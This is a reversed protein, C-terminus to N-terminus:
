PDGPRLWHTLVKLGNEIAANWMCVYITLTLICVEPTPVQMPESSVSKPVSLQEDNLKVGHPWYSTVTFQLFSRLIASFWIVMCRQVDIMSVYVYFCYGVNRFYGCSDRICVYSKM